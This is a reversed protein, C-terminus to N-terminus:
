TPPVSFPQRMKKPPSQPPLPNEEDSIGGLDLNQTQGSPKEVAKTALQTPAKGTNVAPNLRYNDFKKPVSYDAFVETKAGRTYQTALLGNRPNIKLEQIGKPKAFNEVVLYKHVEEMFAHWIPAAVVVGDANYRMLRGDNNGVWVGATIQPTFGLTWGDHFKQTTGTKAAVLRDPLTLPSRKGFVFSRADNDTMISVVEYVAQPDAAQVQKAQYEEIIKGNRNEIKLISSIGNNIGGNALVSYAGVHEVLKVECGGLTLSLGCNKFSTTLGLNEATKVTSDVGVLSLTRVASVNLSGALAQRMPILGYQKGNYNRPIYAPAGSAAFNQTRDLIMSAPSYGFEPSFATLYTYPKFSSGPQLPAIATNVNPDFACNVGSKCGVPEAKGYYNKGGVMALIQGTKSDIAVLSANHANYKKANKEAGESVVREAIEQTTLDLTTFVRLGGEELMKEGYKEILYKEVWQVFYPAYMPTKAQKFVVKESRADNLESESIYGLESMRQLIDNKRLELSIKNAASMFYSPAQPLAALYASEAITLFKASKAFYSRSAAEVGYANRGYPIQNLYLELIEDKSYQREVQIALLAEKIKREWSRDRTLLANKALQQTITSGGQTIRDHQYNVWGARIIAPIYIGKHEYFHKDEIAITANILNQSVESLPIQTRKYEGHIEYLLSGNRDLIKTSEPVNGYALVSPNPLTQTYFALGAITLIGVSLLSLTSYYVVASFTLRQKM